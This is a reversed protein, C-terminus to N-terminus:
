IHGTKINSVINRFPPRETKIQERSEMRRKGGGGREGGERERERRQQRDTQRGTERERERETKREREKRKSM